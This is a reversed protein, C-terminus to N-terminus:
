RGDHAEEPRPAVSEDSLLHRLRTTARSSRARVADPEIGLVGATEATSLGLLGRLVVVDRQAHTLQQLSRQVAVRDPTDPDLHVRDGATAARARARRGVVVRRLRSRGLNRGVHFAWGTPAAMHRVREWNECVKILAEQALEEALWPDGFYHGFAGVLKPHAAKCFADM